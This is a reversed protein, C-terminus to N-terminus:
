ELTYNIFQLRLIIILSDILNDMGLEDIITLYRITTIGRMSKHINEMRVLLHLRNKLLIIM